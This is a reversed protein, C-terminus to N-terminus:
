FKNSLHVVELKGNRATRFSLLLNNLKYTAPRFKKSKAALRFELVSSRFPIFVARVAQIAGGPVPTQLDFAPGSQEGAARSFESLIKGEPYQALLLKRCVDPKPKTAGPNATALAHITIFCSNDVAVVSISGKNEELRFGRPVLFACKNTGVSAYVRVVSPLGPVVETKASTVVLAVAASNTELENASSSKVGTAIFGAALLIYILFKHDMM